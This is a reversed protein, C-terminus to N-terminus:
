IQQIFIYFEVKSTLPATRGRNTDNPTLPNLMHLFKWSKIFTLGDERNKNHPHLELEIAERIPRDTYGTKASLFKREQLKFYPWPQDLRSWYFMDRLWDLPEVCYTIQSYGWIYQEDPRRANILDSLFSSLPHTITPEMRFLPLSETHIAVM